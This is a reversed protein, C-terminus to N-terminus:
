LWHGERVEEVGIDNGPQQLFGSANTCLTEGLDPVIPNTGANDDRAFQSEARRAATRRSESGCDLSNQRREGNERQLRWRIFVVRAYAIVQLASPRGYTGVIQKDRRVNTGQPESKDGLVFVLETSHPLEDDLIPLGSCNQSM